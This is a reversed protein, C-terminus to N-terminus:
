AAAFFEHILRGTASCFRAHVDFESDIGHFHGLMNIVNHEERSVAIETRKDFGELAAARPHRDDRAHRSMRRHYCVFQATLSIHKDVQHVKFGLDSPLCCLALPMRARM